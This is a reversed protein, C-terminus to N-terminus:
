APFLVAWATIFFRWLFLYVSSKNSVFWEGGVGKYPAIVDTYFDVSARADHM